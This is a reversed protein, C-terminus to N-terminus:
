GDTGRVHEVARLVWDALTETYAPSLGGSPGVPSGLPAPARFGAPPLYGEIVIYETDKAHAPHFGMSSARELLKEPSTLDALQSAATTTERLLEARRRELTLLERGAAALRGNVALYMGAMVLLAVLGLLTNGTSQRFNRWPAQRFAQTRAKRV